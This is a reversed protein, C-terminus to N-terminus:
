SELKGTMMGNKKVVYGLYKFKSVGEIRKGKWIWKVRRRRGEGKRFCLVKSEEANLQVNKNRLYEELRKMTEKIGEENKALLILVDAYALTRIRNKEILAGGVKEKKMEEEVDAIVLVFLLPSLPCGQRVAERTGFWNIMNGHVRVANKTQEYIEKIREILGRRISREEM